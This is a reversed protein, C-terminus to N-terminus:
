PPMSPAGLQVKVLCAFYGPVIRGAAPYLLPPCIKLRRNPDGCKSTDALGSEIRATERILWDFPDRIGKAMLRPTAYFRQRSEDYQTAQGKTVSLLVWFGITDSGFPADEYGIAFNQPVGQAAM